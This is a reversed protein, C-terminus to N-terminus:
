NNSNSLMEKLEKVQNILYKCATLAAVTFSTPKISLNKNVKITGDELTTTTEHKSAVYEFLKSDEIDNAIIGLHIAEMNLEEADSVTSIDKSKYVFTAPKLESIFELVDEVTISQEEQVDAAASLMKVQPQDLYHIDSKLSADSSESVSQCYVVGWRSNAVSASGLDLSLDVNNIPRFSESSPVSVDLSVALDGDTAYLSVIDKGILHTQEFDAAASLVRVQPQDLYHIDSKLSADSSESVSQCYVTGWRKDVASQGLDLIGYEEIGVPNFSQHGAISADFTISIGANTAHLTVGHTGTLQVWSFDSVDPGSSGIYLYTDADYAIYKGGSQIYSGDSMFLNDWGCASTGLDCGGNTTPSFALPNLTLCGSSVSGGSPNFYLSTGNHYITQYTDSGFYIGNGGSTASTGTADQIHISGFQYSSTGLDTKGDVSPYLATTSLTLRGGTSLGGSPNFILNQSYRQISPYRGTGFYLGNADQSIDSSAAIGLFLRPWPTAAQGLSVDSASSFFSNNSVVINGTTLTRLTVSSAGILQTTKSANGFQTVEGSWSVVPGSGVDSIVNDQYTQTSPTLYNLEAWDTSSHTSNDTGVKLRSYGSTLYEVGLQGPALTTDNSSSAWAETTGRKIQIKSSM